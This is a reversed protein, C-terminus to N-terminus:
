FYGQRVMYMFTGNFDYEALVKQAEEFTKAKTVKRCDEKHTGVTQEDSDCSWKIFGKAQRKFIQLTEVATM